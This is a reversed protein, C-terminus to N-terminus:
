IPSNCNFFLTKWYWLRRHAFKPGVICPSAAFIETRQQETGQGKRIDCCLDVLYTLLYTFCKYLKM